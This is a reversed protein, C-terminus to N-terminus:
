ARPEKAATQKDLVSLAVRLDEGTTLSDGYFCRLVYAAKMLPDLVLFTVACGTAVFTTNFLHMGSITFLTEVGFFMRLFYPVALMAAMVNVIVIEGLPSLPLLLVMFILAFSMLVEEPATTVGPSIYPLVYSFGMACVVASILLFPSLLWILIHNPKPWLLALQWARQIVPRLKPSSGDGVVSVNEYFAYLWGFPLMVLMALPLLLLRSPQLATQVLLLNWLRRVTWGPPAQQAQFARLRISFLAHWFKMWVFLLALALSAGGSFDLAFSSRSMESWFYLAGLVFPISGIFYFALIDGPARRLLHVAEDIVFFLQEQRVSATKPKM